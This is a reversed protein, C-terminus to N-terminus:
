KRKLKFLFNLFIFKNEVNTKSFRILEFSNKFLRRIEKETFYSFFRVTGPYKKHIEFKEGTGEKLSLALIGNPKLSGKIRKIVKPIKEKPIHLLSAYAWIGDFNEQLDLKEIDVVKARLGKKRCLEIMKESIDICLVDYGQKKFYAAHNGPGSGLDLIKKGPLRKLFLEAEKEVFNKFHKGFKQGFIKAYLDYTRRTESKYNVSNKNSM